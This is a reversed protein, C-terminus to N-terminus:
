SFDPSPTINTQVIDATTKRFDIEAQIAKLFLKHKEYQEGFNKEAFLATVLSTQEALLDVLQATQLNQLEQM